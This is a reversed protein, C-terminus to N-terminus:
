KVWISGIKVEVNCTEETGDSLEVIYCKNIDSYYCKTVIVKNDM